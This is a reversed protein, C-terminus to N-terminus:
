HKKNILFNIEEIMKTVFTTIKEQGKLGITVVDDHNAEENIEYDTYCINTILSFAFVKM